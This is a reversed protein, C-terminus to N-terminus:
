QSGIISFLIEKMSKESRGEKKPINYEYCKHVKFDAESSHKRYGEVIYRLKGKSASMRKQVM